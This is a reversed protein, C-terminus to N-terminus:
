FAIDPGQWSATRPEACAIADDANRWGAPFPASLPDLSLEEWFRDHVNRPLLRSRTEAGTGVELREGRMLAYGPVPESIEPAREASRAAWRLGADHIELAQSVM